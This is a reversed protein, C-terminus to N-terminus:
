NKARPFLARWQFDGDSDSHFIPLTNNPCRDPFVLLLGVGGYGLPSKSAVQAGLRSCLAKAKQREIEDGWACSEESFAFHKPALMESTKFHVDLESYKGLVSEVVQEAAPTSILVSVLVTASRTEIMARNNSLFLDINNSLSRGTASIDDIM